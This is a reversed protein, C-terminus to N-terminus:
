YTGSQIVSTLFDEDHPIEGQRTSQGTSACSFGTLCYEEIRNMIQPVNHKEVQRSLMGPLRTYPPHHCLTQHALGNSDFPLSPGFAVVIYFHYVCAEGM